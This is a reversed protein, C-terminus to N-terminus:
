QIIKAGVNNMADVLDDANLHSVWYHRHSSKVVKIVLLGGM